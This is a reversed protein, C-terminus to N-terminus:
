YFLAFPLTTSAVRRSAFSLDYFDTVPLCEPRARTTPLPVSRSLSLSLAHGRVYTCVGAERIVSESAVDAVIKAVDM